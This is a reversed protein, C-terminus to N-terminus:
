TADLGLRALLAGEAVSLATGVRGNTTGDFAQVTFGHAGYRALAIEALSTAGLRRYAVGPLFRGQDIRITGGPDRPRVSVPDDRLSFGSRKCAAVAREGIRADPHDALTRAIPTQRGFWNRRRLSGEGLARHLDASITFSEILRGSAPVSRRSSGGWDQLHLVITPPAAEFANLTGAEMAPPLANLIPPAGRLTASAPDPLVVSVRSRGILLQRFRSARVGSLADVVSWAMRAAGIADGDCIVWAHDRAGASGIRYAL